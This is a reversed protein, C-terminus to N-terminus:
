LHYSFINEEGLSQDTPSGYTESCTLGALQQSLWQRTSHDLIFSFEGPSQLM